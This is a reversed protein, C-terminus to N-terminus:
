AFSTIPIKKNKDISPQIMNMFAKGEESTGALSNDPEYLGDHDISLSNFLRSKQKNKSCVNEGDNWNVVVGTLGIGM